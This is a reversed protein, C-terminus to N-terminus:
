SADSRTTPPHTPPHAPFGPEARGPVLPAREQIARPTLALVAASVLELDRGLGGTQRPRGLAGDARGLESQLKRREWHM